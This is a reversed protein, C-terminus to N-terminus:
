FSLDGIDLFDIATYKLKQSSLNYKLRSSSLRVYQQIYHLQILRRTYKYLGKPESRDNDEDEVSDEQEQLPKYNTNNESLSFM